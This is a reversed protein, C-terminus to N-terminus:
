QNLPSGIPLTVCSEKVSKTKNTASQEVLKNTSDVTVEFTDTSAASFSCGPWTRSVPNNRTRLNRNPDFDILSMSVDGCQEGNRKLSVFVRRDPLTGTAAYAGPQAAVWGTEGDNVLTVAIKCKKETLSFHAKIKSVYLDPIFAQVFPNFISM